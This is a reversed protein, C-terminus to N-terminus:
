AKYFLLMPSKFTTLLFQQFNPKKLTYYTNKIIKECLIYPLSICSPFFHKTHFVNESQPFKLLIFQKYPWIGITGEPLKFSKPVRSYSAIYFRKKAKKWFSVQHELKLMPLTPLEPHLYWRINKDKRKVLSLAKPHPNHQSTAFLFTAIVAFHCFSFSENEFMHQSKLLLM